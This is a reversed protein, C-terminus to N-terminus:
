KGGFHCFLALLSWDCGRLGVRGRRARARGFGEGGWCGALFMGGGFGNAKGLGGIGGWGVGDGRERVMGILWGVRLDM